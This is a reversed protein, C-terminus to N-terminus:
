VCLKLNLLFISTFESISSLYIVSQINLIFEVWLFPWYKLFYILIVDIVGVWWQIKLSNLSENWLQLYISKANNSTIADTTETYLDVRNTEIRTTQVFSMKFYPIAPLIFWSTNLMSFLTVFCIFILFVVVFELPRQELMKKCKLIFMLQIRFSKNRDTSLHEPESIRLYYVTKKPWKRTKRKIRM